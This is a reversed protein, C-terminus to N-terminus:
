GSLVQERALSHGPALALLKILAKVKRLRWADDDISRTGVVIHFGGLLQIRLVAPPDSSTGNVM